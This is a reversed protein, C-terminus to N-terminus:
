LESKKAGGFVCQRDLSENLTIGMALRQADTLAPAAVSRQLQWYVDQYVPNSVSKYFTETAQLLYRNKPPNLDEGLAIKRRLDNGTFYKIFERIAEKKVTSAGEWAQRGVVLADTFQLMYNSPGLPCFVASYPCIDSNVEASRESFGFFHMTEQSNIDDIVNSSDQVYDGTEAYCDNIDDDSDDCLGIFWLLNECM